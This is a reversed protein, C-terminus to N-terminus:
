AYMLVVGLVGCAFAAYNPWTSGVPIGIAEIIKVFYGAIYSLFLLFFVVGLVNWVSAPHLAAYLHTPDTSKVFLGFILFLAAIIGVGIRTILIGTKTSGKDDMYWKNSM